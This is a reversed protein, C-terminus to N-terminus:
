FEPIEGGDLILRERLKGDIQEWSPRDDVLPFRGTFDAHSSCGRCNRM